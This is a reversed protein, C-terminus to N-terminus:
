AILNAVQLRFLRAAALKTLTQTRITLRDEQDKGHVTLLGSQVNYNFSLIDTLDFKAKLYALM